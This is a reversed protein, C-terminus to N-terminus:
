ELGKTSAEFWDAIQDHLMWPSPAELEPENLGDPTFFSWEEDDIYWSGLVEGHETLVEGRLDDARYGTLIIGRRLQDNNDGM